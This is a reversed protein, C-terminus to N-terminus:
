SSLAAKLVQSAKSVSGTKGLVSLIMAMATNNLRHANARVDLYLDYLEGAVSIHQPTECPISNGPRSYWQGVVRAEFGEPDGVYRDSAFAGTTPAYRVISAPNAFDQVKVTTGDERVPGTFKDQDIM